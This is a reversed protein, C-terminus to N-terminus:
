QKFFIKKVEESDEFFKKDIYNFKEDIPFSPDSSVETVPPLNYVTLVGLVRKNVDM